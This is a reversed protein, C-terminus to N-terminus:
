SCCSFRYQASGLYRLHRSSSLQLMTHRVVTLKFSQENAACSAHVQFVGFSNIYGWTNFVVLHGMLAQTWAKLGGDPPPGPDDSVKSVTRILVKELVGSPWALKELCLNDEMPHVDKQRPEEAIADKRAGPAGEPVVATNQHVERIWDSDM